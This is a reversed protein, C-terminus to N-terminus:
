EESYDEGPRQRDRVTRAVEGATPDLNNSIGASGNSGTPAVGLSPDAPQTPPTGVLKLFDEARMAVIWPKGNRKMAVYPTKQGADAAAEELWQWPNHQHRHKVECHFDPPGGVVDPADPHGAYQRGRRADAWGNAQLVDRWAREARCGKQRSNVM